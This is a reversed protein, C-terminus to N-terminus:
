RFDDSLTLEVAAIPVDSASIASIQNNTNTEQLCGLFCGTTAM